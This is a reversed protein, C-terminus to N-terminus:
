NGANPPTASTAEQKKRGLLACSGIRNARIENKALRDLLMRATSGSFKECGFGQSGVTLFLCCDSQGVKCITKEDGKEVECSNGDGVFYVGHVTETEDAIFKIQKGDMIKIEVMRGSLWGIASEFYAHVNSMEFGEIKELLVYEDPVYKFQFGSSLNAELVYSNGKQEHQARKGNLSILFKNIIPYLDIEGKATVLKWPRNFWGMYLLRGQFKKM